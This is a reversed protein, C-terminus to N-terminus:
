LGALTVRGSLVNIELYLLIVRPHREARDILRERNQLLDTYHAAFMPRVGGCAVIQVDLRVQVDAAAVTTPDGLNRVNPEPMQLRVDTLIGRVLDRPRHQYDLAHTGLAAAGPLDEQHM